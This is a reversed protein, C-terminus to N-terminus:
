GCGHREFRWALRQELEPDLGRKGGLAFLKCDAGASSGVGMGRGAQDPHLCTYDVDFEEESFSVIEMDEDAVELVKARKTASHHRCKECSAM